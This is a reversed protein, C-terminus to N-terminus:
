PGVPTSTQWGALPQWTTPSTHWFSESQQPLRAPPQTIEPPVSPTHRLGVPHLGFPSTQLSEVIVHLEEHSQQAPLQSVISVHLVSRMPTGRQVPTLQTPAPCAHEELASQQPPSGQTGFGPSAPPGNTQRVPPAHTGAHPPQVMLASQQAPSDHMTAMPEVLPIQPGQLGGGSPPM